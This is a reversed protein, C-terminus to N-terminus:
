EGKLARAPEIRLARRAPVWTAIVAAALVAGLAVCWTAPDAPATAYLASRLLRIAAAAAAVGAALGITVTRASTAVVTRVVQPSSAGLAVRIAMERARRSVDYAMTGYTGIAALLLGLLAFAGVTSLAVERSGFTAASPLQVGGAGTRASLPINPDVQRIAERIAPAVVAPNVAHAVLTIWPWVERTYVVYAEAAPATTPGSWHVDHVVGIVPGSMPAGADDRQAARFLTIRRGLPDEGAFFRRAMTENIVFGSADPNRADAETFWRGRVMALGMTRQYEPSAVLQMASGQESADSPRGEVEVRSPIRGGIHNVLAAGDVGPVRAVADRIRQYLVLADGPRDYSPSPPMIAATVVRERDYEDPTAAIRRVSQALLGASVLLMLALAVQGAVLGHRVVADRRGHRSEHHTGHLADGPAVATTRIAPVLGAVLSALIAVLTAIGLVRWDVAMEAVRPLQGGMWVRVAQVIAVAIATGGLAGIAGLWAVEAIQLRLLRTRAAGLAARVSFERSRAAGRMLGLVAVNACAILLVLAAAGVLMWLSSGVDGILENRIPWLAVGVWHASEQPYVTALRREVAALATAARASDGPSHLRVVARSDAHVNRNRYIAQQAEFHAVSVWADGGYPYTFGPPMVGIVTTPVSDLDITRGVVDPAGGFQRRWLEYSIVAVRNADAREEDPAFTRGRYPPTGMLGFFGPTVAWVVLRDIGDATRFNMQSGRMFALGEIPGGVATRFDEFTPYSLGRMNGRDSREVVTALSAADRYPLARVLISDAVSGIGTTLGIGLALTIGCIAAYSPSRRLTRLAFSLDHLM